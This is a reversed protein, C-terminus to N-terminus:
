ALGDLGKQMYYVSQNQLGDNKNFFFNEGNRFPAGYRVYNYLKELRAKVSSRYPITDLYGFTVKNEEEVWKATDPSNEDELWRYPDAVKEGFYTDMQDGKKAKPYELGQAAAPPCAAALAVAFAALRM